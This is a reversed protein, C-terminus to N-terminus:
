DLDYVEVLAQGTASNKGRVIATYAGPNLRILIAAERSDTPALRTAEIQLRQSDQWNDNSLLRHGESDYLELVPDALVGPVGLRALSPGLARILVTRPNQSTIIWGGIMVGDGTGVFGRASINILKAHSSPELDYVDVLGVGTSRNKGRVIATYAGPNLM